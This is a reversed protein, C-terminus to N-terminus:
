FEIRWTKGIGVNPNKVVAYPAKGDGQTHYELAATVSAKADDEIVTVTNRGQWEKPPDIVVVREVRVSAISKLYAATQPGHTAIDESTLSSDQFRFRRHIYGGRQYDFTEGDDVYLTGDAQGNKDLVVVLTYPDYKM